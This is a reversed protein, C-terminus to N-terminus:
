IRVQPLIFLLVCMLIAPTASGVGVKSGRVTEVSNDFLHEFNLNDLM